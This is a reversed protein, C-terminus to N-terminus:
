SAQFVVEAGSLSRRALPLKDLLQVEEDQGKATQHVEQIVYTQVSLMTRAQMSTSACSSLLLRVLAYTDPM